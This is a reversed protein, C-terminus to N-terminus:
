TSASRASCAGSPAPWMPMARASSRTSGRCADGHRLGARGRGARRRHHLRPQRRGGGSRGAGPRQARGAAPARRRHRRQRAGADAGGHHDRGRRGGPGSHREDAPQVSLGGQRRARLHRRPRAAHGEPRAAHRRRRPLELQPRLGRAPARPLQAGARRGAGAGDRQAPTIADLAASCSPRASRWRPWAGGGAPRRLARHLELVAADGRARVDALIQPWASSSPPTPRPRGTCCASSSAGRLRRRTTALDRMRGHSM